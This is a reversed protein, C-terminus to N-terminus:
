KRIRDLFNAFREMAPLLEEIHPLFVIRVYDPTPWNFGTGHVLLVKEQQLFDMVLDVDNKIDYYNPDLQPFLYLAGKPKFCNVGKISDLVEWAIKRQEYLRGGPQTLENISQYGGLATQVAHQAPVNACLRMSALMDLGEIYDKALNKPGTLVMWGSRFGATRYVKSLGGFTICLVDDKTLTASPIHQAEDYLIGDYIEDSFIILNHEKAIQILSELTSKDYVAGTPNNPNIIVLAKTKNSIKSKIDNIDPQWENDPDCRYHKVYGGSLTAAATWLPYDPAPILIEDGDNLLAQMCMVILESVGNGMWIDNVDVSRIGMAQYKQMVAKRASYLGKSECYGQATPLNHIVDVLIEDPAEFGFPAPNGINLKLIRHGEDEMRMAEKLVPGRIEYCINALKNSKRIQM